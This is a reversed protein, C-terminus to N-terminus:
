QQGSANDSDNNESDDSETKIVLSYIKRLRELLPELLSTRVEVTLLQHTATYDRAMVNGEGDRIFRMATDAETYPVEVCFRAQVVKEKSVAAAIAEAAATKYAVVLGGTGLKVGGFYRVVVVLTYTLQASRIQGLIPRGATGSPEGDDNARTTHGENGLVYAFCVHRADYFQKRLAAVRAKVEDEDAVHEAFALFKSRKETYIAEGNTAITLYTDM